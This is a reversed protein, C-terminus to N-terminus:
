ALELLEQKDFDDNTVQRRTVVELDSFRFDHTKLKRVHNPVETVITHKKPTRWEM